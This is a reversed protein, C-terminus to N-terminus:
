FNLVHPLANEKIYAERDMAAEEETKFYKGLILRGAIM